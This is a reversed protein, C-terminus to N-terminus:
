SPCEKGRQQKLARTCKKLDAKLEFELEQLERIKAGVDDLKTKLFQRVAACAHARDARIAM